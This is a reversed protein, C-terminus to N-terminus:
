ICVVDVLKGCVYTGVQSCAKIPVINKSIEFANISLVSSDAQKTLKIFLYPSKM